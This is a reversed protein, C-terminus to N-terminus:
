YRPPLLTRRWDSWIRLPQALEDIAFIIIIAQKEHNFRRVPEVRQWCGVLILAMELPMSQVRFLWCCLLDNQTTRACTDKAGCGGAFSVERKINHCLEPSQIVCYYIAIVPCAARCIPLM